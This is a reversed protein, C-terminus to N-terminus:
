AAVGEGAFQRMDPGTLAVVHARRDRLRSQVDGPLRDLDANTAFLTLLRGMARWREDILRCFREMAWETASFKELEDVALVEASILLEWRQDIDLEVGPKYAARLYDLLVATRTYVSPIGAGRAKNVACVLLETKGLGWAGTLTVIGQRKVLADVVVHYATKNGPTIDFDEFDNLREERTLGDISVLYHRRREVDNATQCECRFAKGFKRSKPNDTHYVWGLDKCAFCTYGAVM